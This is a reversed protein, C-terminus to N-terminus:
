QNHASLTTRARLKHFNGNIKLLELLREFFTKGGLIFQCEEIEKFTTVNYQAGQFVANFDEVDLM